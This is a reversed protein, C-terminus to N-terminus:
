FLDERIKKVHELAREELAIDCELNYVNMVKFPIASKAKILDIKKSNITKTIDLIAQDTDIRAQEVREELTHEQIAKEGNDLIEKLLDRYKSNKTQTKM